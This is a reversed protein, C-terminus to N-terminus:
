INEKWAQQFKPNHLLLNILHLFQVQINLAALDRRSFELPGFLSDLYLVSNM